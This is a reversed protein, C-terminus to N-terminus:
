TVFWDEHLIEARSCPGREFLDPFADGNMIAQSLQLLRKAAVEANWLDAITHYAADGLRRQREPEELLRKISAYLTEM